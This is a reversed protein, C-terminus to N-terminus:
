PHQQDRPIDDTTETNDTTRHTKQELFSRLAPNAKTQFDGIDASSWRRGDKFDLVLGARRTLTGDRNRFGEIEILRIVDAYRYSSEPAFADDKAVIEDAYLNVHAPIERATFFAIPVLTIVALIRMVKTVNFGVTLNSFRRYLMIQQSGAKLSWLFLTIDWCLTLAAFGPFFWWIATQPLLHFAAPPSSEAFSQNSKVLLLHLLWTMALCVLLMCIQVIWNAVRFQQDLEERTPQDATSAADQAPLWKRVLAFVLLVAFPVIARRLLDFITSKM